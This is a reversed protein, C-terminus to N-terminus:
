WRFHSFAKNAEAMKHMDERKKISAGEKKYADLLEQALREAFNKGRRARAYNRIWRLAISIGRDQKVELPVQYTAGGVRRSKVELLPRVNDVAKTFIEIPDKNGSRESIIDFAGYVVQEALSKKGKLMLTNVFRSVVKNKYKPDPLTERQEAARRRM